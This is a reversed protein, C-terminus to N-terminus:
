IIYSHTIFCDSQRCWSGAIEEHNSVNRSVHSSHTQCWSTLVHGQTTEITYLILEYQLPLPFIHWVTCPYASGSTESHGSFDELGPRDQHLSRPAQYLGHHTDMPHCYMVMWSREESDSIWPIDQLLVSRLFTWLIWPSQPRPLGARSCIHSAACVDWRCASLPIVPWAHTDSLRFRLM